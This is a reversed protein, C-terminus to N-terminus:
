FIFKLAFQIQRPTGVQTTILGATPIPAFTPGTATFVQQYLSAVPLGLNDHNFVNFFEARFEVNLTETIPTRKILSVDADAFNPGRVTNRGLNGLTGPAPMSFAAPDYWENITGVKPDPRFGPNLNPREALAYLAGGTAEDYGTNINVPLGTNYSVIGSLQWGRTLRSGHFPLAYTGNFRIVNKQTTAAYRKTPPATTRTWIPRHPIPTSHM